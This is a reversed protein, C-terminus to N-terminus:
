WSCVYCRATQVTCFLLLATELDRDSNVPGSQLQSVTKSHGQDAITDRNFLGTPEFKKQFFFAWIKSVHLTIFIFQQLLQKRCVARGETACDSVAVCM